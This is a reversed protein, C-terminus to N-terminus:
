YKSVAQGTALDIILQFDMHLFTTVAFAENFSGSLTCELYIPSTSVNIGSEATGSKHSYRELDQAVIYSPVAPSAATGTWFALTHLGAGAVDSFSHFSKLLEAFAEANTRVPRSPFRTGGINYAWSGVNQFLNMRESVSRATALRISAQKRFVSLLTKLCTSNSSILLSANQSGSPVLNGHAAFTSSPIYVGGANMARLAQDVAPDVNVMEGVLEVDAIQWSVAAAEPGTMGTAQIPDGAEALTLELTLQGTMFGTPLMKSALTGLVGSILPICFYTKTTAIANGTRDTTAHMGELINSSHFSNDCNSQTDFLAHYLVNYDQITELVQSGLRVSLQRIFASASYDLNVSGTATGTRIVSFTLYSQAPNLYQGPQCPIGIQIIDAPVFSTKNLSPLNLRVKTAARASPKARYILSDPVGAGEM